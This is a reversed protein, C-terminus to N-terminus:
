RAHTVLPKVCSFNFSPFQFRQSVAINSSNSERVQVEVSASISFEARTIKMLTILKTETQYPSSTYVCKLKM